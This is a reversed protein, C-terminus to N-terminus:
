AQGDERVVFRRQILVVTITLLALILAAASALGVRPLASSPFVNEYVFFALSIRSELPATASLLSVQDFLQLTGIIGTTVVFFTVPRLMPVTIYLTHQWPTTGDIAAAEYLSRPIGQLGALFFLMLTPITTFTNQVIIFLLPYPVVGLFRDRTSLWNLLRPEATGVPVVGFATLLWTGALAVLLSVVLLAPDFPAAPLGRRREVLVQLSQVAAALALFVLIPGAHNSVYNSLYSITGRPQFLWIFILTIVVSSTISPMYYATRFFTLGRLKQNLVIALLLAGSTQLVVVIVCYMLTNALATLFLPDRVIRSYNELGVFNQRDFLNYDTFSFYLTRAFAYGFFVLVFLVFPALFGYATLAERTKENM